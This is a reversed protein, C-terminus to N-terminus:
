VITVAHSMNEQMSIRSGLSSTDYSLLRSAPAGQWVSDSEIVEGTMALSKELLMSGQEMYVGQQIRSRTRLTVNNEMVIKKLEFNGRTNLHSVVSATDVVCRHGMEVLDPEPMYPDGGAPYLCCDQGIKAGLLRFFSSMWPTGALFDLFNLRAISRVKCVIQYLEWNQNYSTEDWNYRGEKRRGMLAWKAGVEIAVWLFILVAHTVFYCCILVTYVDDMKVEDAGKFFDKYTYNYGYIFRATLHLAAIIPFTHLAAILVKVIFTFCIM